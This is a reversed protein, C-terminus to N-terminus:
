GMAKTMNEVLRTDVADRAQRIANKIANADSRGHAIVSVGNLGLLPAGGYESYDYRKKFEKLAPKLLLLGLLSRWNARAEVRFFDFFLDVAGEGFKLMSNGAFGDTVVVDVVGSLIHKGEVNGAFNLASDSLLLEHTSQTLQNGKDTEEGINLLGIRPSELGLVMRSYCMGMKAFQVLHSPKSDVSAGMDLMVFPGNKSPLIAAIAPREVGEIRGLILTSATMVAGTNGASVFADARGTKLLDLGVRISSEKKQRFSKSPSEGMEVVDTAHAITVSSAIQPAHQAIAAKVVDEPGVLVIAVGLTEIALAAGKVIEDPAHDGGMADLAVRIM